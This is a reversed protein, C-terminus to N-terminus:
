RTALLYVEARIRGSKRESFSENSVFGLPVDMVGVDPVDIWKNHDFDNPDTKKYRFGASGHLLM